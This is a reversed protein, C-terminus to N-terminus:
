SREERTFLSKVDRALEWCMVGCGVAVLLVFPAVPIHLTGSYEKIEYLEIARLLTQWTMLGLIVLAALRMIIDIVTRPVQPLSGM